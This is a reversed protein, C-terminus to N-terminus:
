RSVCLFNFYLFGSFIIARALFAKEPLRFFSEFVKFSYLSM